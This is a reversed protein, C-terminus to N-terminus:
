EQRRASHLGMDRVDQLLGAQPGPNFDSSRARRASMRWCRGHCTPEEYFRVGPAGVLWALATYEFLGISGFLLVEGLLVV